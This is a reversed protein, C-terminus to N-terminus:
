YKSKENLFNIEVHFILFYNINRCFNRLSENVFTQKKTENEITKYTQFQLKTKYFQNLFLVVIM